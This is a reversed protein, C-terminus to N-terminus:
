KGNTKQLTTINGDESIEEVLINATRTHEARACSMPIDFTERASDAISSIYRELASLRIIM